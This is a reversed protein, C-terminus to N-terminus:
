AVEKLTWATQSGDSHRIIGGLVDDGDVIVLSQWRARFAADVVDDATEDYFHGSRRHGHSNTGAYRMHPRVVHDTFVSM